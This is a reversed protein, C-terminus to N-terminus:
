LEPAFGQRMMSECIVQPNVFHALYERGGRMVGGTGSLGAVAVPQRGVRLPTIDANIFVQGAVLSERAMKIHSPKRSYVGGSLAYGSGKTNAITIAEEFSSARIVVVVPGLIQEQATVADPSVDTFIHPMIYSRGPMLQSASPTDTRNVLKGEFAAKELRNRIVKMHDESVIPGMETGPELPNGVYRENTAEVLRDVFDDYASDVVIVRSCAYPSQGARGFACRLVSMVAEGLDASTDVIIANKGGFEAIVRKAQGQGQQTTGAAQVIELGKERDGGYVITAVAPHYWLATADTFAHVFSVVGEPCGAMSLINKYEHIVGRGTEPVVVVATNGTVVSASTMACLVSLPHWWPAYCLVVGRPQHIVTNREGIFRGLRRPLFYEIAARAHFELYDITDCIEQDAERWTYGIEKIIMGALEDRRHRMIKAANILVEARTHFPQRAWEAFKVDATHIAGDVDESFQVGREVSAKGIESVFNERVSQKSFDRLVANSFARGDGVREDSTTLAQKEAHHELMVMGPDEGEPDISAPNILLQRDSSGEAFSARLWSENSTNELLRRVFYAMGALLEGVPLYERLRLGEELAAAKLPDGMGHLMQLELAHDPLDNKRITALCAAISRANHSGLALKVGGEGASKPMNEIFRTAMREFNADTDQKRSWVPVPRGEQEASITEYDWYAGKVLRVTVQRGTSKAWDIVGRADDMGSRLYAQLALGAPFDFKECCREFLDITFEKLEAQEIDFNIFVGKESAAKLLPSLRDILREMVGDRDIPDVKWYLSTIKISVNVRPIAGLYDQELRENLPFNAVLGPLENILNLYKEQYEDAVRQSHCAEGLLDVSFCMGKKWLERLLPAASEANRGAIFKKAMGEIQKTMRGAFMGKAIGGAKLMLDMGPPPTVGPQSLYDVLHDHIEEPTKLAPYADIFRFFQIKFQEDKMAWDMLKDSWFQSSFVGSQKKRAHALFQSGIAFVEREYESTNLQSSAIDVDRSGHRDDQHPVVAAKRRSFLAM